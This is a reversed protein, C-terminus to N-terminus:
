SCWSISPALTPFLLFCARGFRSGAGWLTDTKEESSRRTAAEELSTEQSLLAVRELHWLCWVALGLGTVVLPLVPSLGGDIQTARHFFLHLAAPEVRDDLSWLSVSYRATLFAYVLAAFVVLARAVVELIWAARRGITDWAGLAYRWGIGSYRVVLRVTAMVRRAIAVSWVLAVGAVFVWSVARPGIDTSVRLILVAAPAFMGGLAVFLLVAYLEKHVQLSAEQVARALRVSDAKAPV